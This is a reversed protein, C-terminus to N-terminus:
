RWNLESILNCKVAIYAEDFPVQKGNARELVWRGFFCEGHRSAERTDRVEIEKVVVKGWLYNDYKLLRM